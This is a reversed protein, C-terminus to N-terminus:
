ARIRASAGDGDPGTVIKIEITHRPLLPLAPAGSEQLDELLRQVADENGTVIGEAWEESASDGARFRPNRLFGQTAFQPHSPLLHSAVFWSLPFNSSFVRSHVEGLSFAAATSDAVFVGAALSSDAQSLESYLHLGHTFDFIQGSLAVNRLHALKHRTLETLASPRPAYLLYRVFPVGVCSQIHQMRAHQNADVSLFRCAEDFNGLTRPRPYLRKAQLLWAISFSRQPLMRDELRIVIGVDAQTVWHEWTPNYEHTDITLAIRVIGEISGLDSSLQSLTYVLPWDAQTGDDMLECLLSTLAPEDWPKKRAMRAAVVRDIADFYRIINAFVHPAVM